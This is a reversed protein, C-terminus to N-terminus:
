ANLINKTFKSEAIYKFIPECYGAESNLLDLCQKLDTISWLNDIKWLSSFISIREM